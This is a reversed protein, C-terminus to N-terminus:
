FHDRPPVYKPGFTRAVIGDLEDLTRTLLSVKKRMPLFTSKFGNLVLRRVDAIGLKFTEVALRYEQSIDTNSVLTNDTNLTVRLGVDYYKKFPHDALTAVAGTQMNSSLCIELPIRHDNVYAMLDPDEHLRTGHGIRHAGLYHIAQSISAPGFGEGAHCTCNINNNLIMYFAKIHDKAPYDKEAGALDFAVAGKGKYEVSLRAMEMNKEPPLHRMACVIAGTEVGTSQEAQKLGTLVAEMIEQLSHGHQVHLIPSFRVEIYRVNERAADEVVERAVRTLAAPEQMVSLTVDFAELYEELSECADGCVLRRRLEEEPELQLKVGQERALERVTSLRLSGDLHIHLDTKPIERLFNPADLIMGSELEAQERSTRIRLM